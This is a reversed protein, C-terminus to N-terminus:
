FYEGGAKKMEIYFDTKTNFKRLAPEMEKLKELIEDSIKTLVVVADRIEVATKNLKILSDQDLDNKVKILIDIEEEFDRLLVPLYEAEWKVFINKVKNFDGVMHTKVNRVAQKKDNMNRM